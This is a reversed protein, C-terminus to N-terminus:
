NIRIKHGLHAEAAQHLILSAETLTSIQADAAQEKMQQIFSSPMQGKTPKSSLFQMRRTHTPHLALMVKDMEEWIDSLNAREIGDIAHMKEQWSADLRSNLTGWVRIGDLGDPYSEFVWVSFERKFKKYDITSCDENLTDPLLHKMNHFRNARVPSPDRSSPATVISGTEFHNMTERKVVSIRDVYDTLSIDEDDLMQNCTDTLNPKKVMVESLMRVLVSITKELKEKATDATEIYRAGSNIMRKRLLNNGTTGSAELETAIQTAGKLSQTIERKLVKVSSTLRKIQEDELINEGESNFEFEASTSVQQTLWQEPMNEAMTVTAFRANM